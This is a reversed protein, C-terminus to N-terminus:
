LCWFTLVDNWRPAQVFLRSSTFSLVLWLGHDAEATFEDDICVQAAGGLKFSSNVFPDPAETLRLNEIDDPPLGLRVWISKAHGDVLDRLMSQFM